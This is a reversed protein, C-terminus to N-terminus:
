LRHLNDPPSVGPTLKPDAVPAGAEIRLPIEGAWCPLAYDGDDDIPPGSRIKASADDIGIRLVATVRLERETPPRVQSWRGPTAHEILARLAAIKEAEVATRSLDHLLAM